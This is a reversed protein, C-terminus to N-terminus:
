FNRHKIFKRRQFIGRSQIVLIYVGPKLFTLRISESYPFDSSPNNLLKSYVTHGYSDIIQISADSSQNPAFQLYFDIKDQVFSPWFDFFYFDNPCVGNSVTFNVGAANYSICPNRYTKNDCGCVPSFTPGCQYWPNIRNSDICPNGFQASLSLSM